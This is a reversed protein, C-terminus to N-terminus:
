GSAFAGEDLKVRGSPAQKPPDLVYLAGRADLSCARLRLEQRLPELEEIPNADLAALVRDADRNHLRLDPVNSDIAHGLQDAAIRDGRRQLDQALQALAARPVTVGAVTIM